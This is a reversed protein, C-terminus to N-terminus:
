ESLRQIRKEHRRIRKRSDKDKISKSIEDQIRKKGRDTLELTKDKRKLYKEDVLRQTRVTLQNTHQPSKLVYNVDGTSKIVIPRFFTQFENGLSELTNIEEGVKFLIWLDLLKIQLQDYRKWIGLKYKEFNIKEGHSQERLDNFIKYAALLIIVGIFCGVIGDILHIGISSALVAILVLFANLVHNKSDESQALIALSRNNYGSLRQYIYLLGCLTISVLAIISALNEEELAIPNIIRDVGQSLIGLGTILMLVLLIYTAITEKRIIMALGVLISSIGDMISDLGDGLLSISGTAFFGMIKVIGLFTHIFLALVPSISPAMALTLLNFFRSLIRAHKEAEVRGKETLSYIGGDILAMKEQVLFDLSQKIKSFESYNELDELFFAIGYRLALKKVSNAIEEKNKSSENLIILVFKIQEDIENPFISTM